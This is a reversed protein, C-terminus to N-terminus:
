SEIVVVKTNSVIDGIAYIASAPLHTDLILSGGPAIQLGGAVTAAAGALNLFVNGVTDNNQVILLRRSANAALLLGSANTVPPATQTMTDAQGIIQVSGTTRNYGGDGFGVAIKIAQTTASQFGLSDFGDEPKSFFGFEMNRAESVVGGNRLFDVDVSAATELLHFYNGKIYFPLYEGATLNITLTKM